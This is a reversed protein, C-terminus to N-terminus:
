QPLHQPLKLYPHSIPQKESIPLAFDDRLPGTAIRDARCAM